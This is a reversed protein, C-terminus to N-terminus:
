AADRRSSAGTARQRPTRPKRPSRGRGKGGARGVEPEPDPPATPIPHHVPAPYRAAIERIVPDPWYDARVRDTNGTDTVLWGTGPAAPSIRHAPATQATGDGLVMRTEEGSRLRLAITQTFLGRMGVTEKRPDQVFAVVVVGLARGQSLIQALLREGDRKTETPAYATLAALEDIVLVHLPDGVGPTHLRAHGAMRRGREDCVGALLRLVEIAQDPTTALTSFLGHGMTLEVGAKLDVGWLRAVDAHVAPALGCCVGWLVSGKGSGSAGVVLTHRGTLPLLWDRGAQTRGLRITEVVVAARPEVGASVTPTTLLDRMVLEVVLSASSGPLPWTRFAAADFLSALRDASAELETLTQGPRARVTLTVSHASTRVKRLRPCRWEEVTVPRGARRTSHTRHEAWQVDRCVAPWQGTVLRRWRWRRWPRAAVVEFSGPSVVVWVAGALGPATGALALLVVVLPRPEALWCAGATLVAWLALWRWASRAWGALWCLGRVVRAGAAIM